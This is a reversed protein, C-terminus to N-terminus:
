YSLCSTWHTLYPLILIYAKRFIFYFITVAILNQVFKKTMILPKTELSLTPGHSIYLCFFPVRYERTAWVTFFRSEICSTRTWDKPQSSGRFFPIPVWKLIRAQLIGHVFSGTPEQRSYEMSLPAQHAVTWLTEFLQIHSLVYRFYWCATRSDAAKWM